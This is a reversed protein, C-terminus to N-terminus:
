TFQRGAVLVRVLLQDKGPQPISRSGVFLPKGVEDLVIAKQTMAQEIDSQLLRYTSSLLILIFLYPILM